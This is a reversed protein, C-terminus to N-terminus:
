FAEWTTESAPLPAATRRAPRAPLEARAPAVYAPAAREQQVQFASVARSLSEAQQSLSSAAAASEEVLAANQQTVQDMQTVAANIQDIGRSQEDATSAIETILDNVKRVQDLIDSMAQGAEAVHRSGAEVKDASSGILAKIERAAEASRQALVRVEGAVVAFGRGQEGARAAEVAANLALINTQFAIGDIVGIIDVVQRSSHSIDEMTSVVNDVAAGGRGVADSAQTALQSATRATDASQRVASTLQEMSSATQQLSSAQQETRSSLDQNGAAIQGSATTVSEVGSRVEGVVHRLAEITAVLNRQLDGIEDSRDVTADVTLDGAAVTKLTDVVARVPRTVSRTVLVGAMVAVVTGLAAAGLVLATVNQVTQETAQGAEEMLKEQFEVVADIKGQYALQRPRLHQLLATRARGMDQSKAASLFSELEADYAARETRLEALLARGHETNVLGELKKFKDDQHKGAEAITDFQQRRDEDSDMILLNRTSRAQHNVEDGMESVLNVKVYRDHLVGDLHENIRALGSRAILATALLLLTLAGFALGLRTGIRLNKLANM